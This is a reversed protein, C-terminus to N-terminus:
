LVMNIFYLNSACSSLCYGLTMLVDRMWMSHSPHGCNKEKKKENSNVSMICPEITYELIYYIRRRAQLAINNYLYAM